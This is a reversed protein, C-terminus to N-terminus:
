KSYGHFETERKGTVHEWVKWSALGTLMDVELLFPVSHFHHLSATQYGLNGVQQSVQTIISSRQTQSELFHSYHCWRDQVSSIPIIHSLYHLARLCAKCVLCEIFSLQSLSSNLDKEFTQKFYKLCLSFFLSNRLSYGHAM